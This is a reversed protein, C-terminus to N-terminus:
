QAATNPKGSATGEPGWELTGQAGIYLAGDIATGAAGNEVVYSLGGSCDRLTTGYSKDTDAGATFEVLDISDDWNFSRFDTDVVVGAFIIYLDGGSYHAM